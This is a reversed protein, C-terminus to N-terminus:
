VSLLNEKIYLIEERLENNKELEKEIKSYSYIITTHDKGGIKKAIYPYSYNLDKRLFYIMIQRSRVIEKKRSSGLIEKESVEYLNSITKL